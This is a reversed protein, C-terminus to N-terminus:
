KAVRQSKGHEAVIQQTISKPASVIRAMAALFNSSAQKGEVFDAVEKPRGGTPTKKQVCCIHQCNPYFDIFELFHRQRVAPLRAGASIRSFRDSAQCMLELVSALELGEHSAAVCPM